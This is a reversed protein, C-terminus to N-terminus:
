LGTTITPIFTILSHLSSKTVRTTEEVFQELGFIATTNNWAPPQKFLDINFDGLLLINANCEMVKDMM